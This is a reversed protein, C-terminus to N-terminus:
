ICKEGKTQLKIIKYFKSNQLVKSYPFSFINYNNNNSYYNNNSNRKRSQSTVRFWLHSSWLPTWKLFLQNTNDHSNQLFVFIKM